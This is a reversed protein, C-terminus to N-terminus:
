AGGKLRSIRALLEAPIEYRRRNLVLGDVKGFATSLIGLANEVMPVTSKGSEIVLLILDAQKLQVFTAHNDILSSAEILVVEGPAAKDDEGKAIRAPLQRDELVHLLREAVFSVGESRRASSLGVTLGHAQVRELPLLGYLRYLSAEFAPSIKGEPEIELLTSWVPVGFRKELRSGDHIRLDVLYCLYLVLAGVALAAPIAMFLILLSKPFVRAPSYTAKEIVAINSIRSNDLERDIRAKELSDLYLAYNKEKSALERELRSLEPEISLIRRRELKLRAIEQDYAAILAKLEDIRTTRELSTRRLMTVLENPVRNESRQITENERAIATKLGQISADLEKIPPADDQYTKLKELRELELGNLKLKLDQQTPNLSLERESVVEGPLDSVAREAKAVGNEYALREAYAESRQSLVTNMRETLSELKERSDIGDIDMLHKSIIEKHEAIQAALRRSESEYFEYLSKRGLAQAREDLYVSIWKDMIAQAQAPDPWTFRVEMVSSGTAHSVTFQKELKSALRETPSQEELVGLVVLGSRLTEKAWETIMRSYYKIRKWLGIPPQTDIQSICHEAVM